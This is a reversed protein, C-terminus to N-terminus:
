SRAAPGRRHRRATASRRASLTLVGAAVLAVLNVVLQAAAGGCESWRGAAAAVGVDAAAPVTTVSVAVGILAGSKASTLAVVGAVGALLAVVLAYGDPNSVFDTLPRREQTYADPLGATARVVLTMLLAALVALPFGVGLAVLSRRALGWRREIAAVTLGMVPGFEPGVVMAGVILVSSDLMIGVAAILTALVLLATFSVSLAAEDGTRAEVEEWVVADVGSGPAREEAEAAYRSVSTEVDMLTLAMLESSPLDSLRRVVDSTCERALDAEVVDGPPDLAAGPHHVVHTAGPEELLLSLVQDTASPPCLVRLALM